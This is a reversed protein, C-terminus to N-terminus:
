APTQGTSCQHQWPSHCPPSKNWGSAVSCLWLMSEGGAEDSIPVPSQLQLLAAGCGTTYPPMHVKTDGPLAKLLIGTGTPRGRSDGAPLPPQQCYPRSIDGHLILMAKELHHQSCCERPAAPGPAPPAPIERNRCIGNSQLRLTKASLHPITMSPPHRRLLADWAHPPQLPTSCQPM